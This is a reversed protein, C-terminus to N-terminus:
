RMTASVIFVRGFLSATARSQTITELSTRPVRCISRVAEPRLSVKNLMYSLLEWSFFTHHKCQEFQRYVDSQVARGTLFIRARSWLNFDNPVTFLLRGGPKLVRAVERMLNIPDFVHEVVDGAWVVDFSREPFKLGDKDVDSLFASVGRSRAKEVAVASFDVGTVSYGRKQLELAISGIGCGVDLLTADQSSRTAPLLSFMIQEETEIPNEVGQSYRLNEREEARM